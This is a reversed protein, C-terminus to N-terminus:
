GSVDLIYDCFKSKCPIRNFGGTHQWSKSANNVDRTVGTEMACMGSVPPLLHAAHIVVSISCPAPMGCKRISCSCRSHRKGVIISKGCRICYPGSAPWRPWIVPCTIANIGVDKYLQPRSCAGFCCRTSFMILVPIVLPIWYCVIVCARLGPLKSHASDCSHQKPVCCYYSRPRRLGTNLSRKSVLFSSAPNWLHLFLKEGPLHLLYPHSRVKPQTKSCFHKESHSNSKYNCSLLM